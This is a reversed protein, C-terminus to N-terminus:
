DQSIFSLKVCFEYIFKLFNLANERINKINLKNILIQKNM